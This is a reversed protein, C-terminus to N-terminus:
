GTPPSPSSPATDSSPTETLPYPGVAAAWNSAHIDRRTNDFRFVVTRSSYYDAFGIDPDFPEEPVTVAAIEGNATIQWFLIPRWLANTPAPQDERYEVVWWGPEAPFRSGGHNPPGAYGAFGDCDEASCLRGASKAWPGVILGVVHGTGDDQWCAVARPDDGDNLYARWGPAAPILTNM